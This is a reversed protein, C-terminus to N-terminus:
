MTEVPKIGLLNLGNVLVQRIAQIFCLRVQSLQMHKSIFPQQNYYQHFDQSLNRLYNVLQNPAYSLAANQLIESYQSLCKLLQIEEDEVLLHLHQIGHGPDSDIHRKKAQRLVSCIRAHAYQVYYVPNDNSRSTALQLDFELPQEIKRMVYFFRTAENGVEERLERLTVFSGSRTSMPIKIKGRYLSVFQVLPTKLVDSKNTLARIAARVRPIYGHHDAGLVDIIQDFGRELKTLHYAIDTAFYTYSGNSRRIVRDKEDGLQSAAFWYAEEKKYIYGAQQLVDLCHEVQKSQTLQSECYWNDYDVGFEHLDQKIDDLITTLAVRFIIPYDEKLLTKAYSILSDIHQEKDENVCVQSGDPLNQHFRDGYQECLSQAIMYIYDGQYGNAPFELQEGQQELYRLWVSVALIDMQRGADNVYYERHVEYGVAKLLNAVCAGYAASRGHGVHLPGTPNASVYEVHIRQGVGYTSCGFNEGQQLIEDVIVYRAKHTLFFNIFGPGAIEVQQVYESVPLQEIIRQALQRPNCQAQKAYILAVNSSFDGHKEDRTREVQIDIPRKDLYVGQNILAQEILQKIIHKM